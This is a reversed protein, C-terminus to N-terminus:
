KEEKRELYDKLRKRALAIDDEVTRQAKTVSHLLVILREEDFAYFIRYRVTAIRERLEHLGKGLPCAAPMQLMPGNIQLVQIAKGLKLREEKELAQLWERVPESGQPTKYFFVKYKLKPKPAEMASYISGNKTTLYCHDEQPSKYQFFCPSLLRRTWHSRSLCNSYHNQGSETQRRAFDRPKFTKGRGRAQVLLLDVGDPSMPQPM